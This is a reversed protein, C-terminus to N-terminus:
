FWLLTRANERELIKQTQDPPFKLVSTIVKAMTKTERGMMYEFVVKRLYEFETPEGFLSVDSHCLNGDRYPTKVTTVYVAKEYNKLKDQLIHIQERFEQEKLKSDNVLTTKQALQAQLEAIKEEDGNWSEEYALRKKHDEKLQVLQEELKNVKKTMEEERAELIDEYKKVTRQLDDDKESIKKHLQVTETHHSEILESEVEQAKSITEKVAMELEQDKQALQTNFERMLQKLTSNHKLEIDEQEYKIKQEMEERSEKKMIELEQQHEKRLTRLDKQLKILDRHQEQKEQETQKLTAQLDKQQMQMENVMKQLEFVSKTKEEINGELTKILGSGEDLQEQLSNLKENYESIRNEMETRQQEREKMFDEGFSQGKEEKEQLKKELDKIAIEMNQEKQEKNKLEVKINRLESEYKTHQEHLSAQKKIQEELERQLNKIRNKDEQSRKLLEEQQEQAKMKSINCTNAEESYKELLREKDLLDKKLIDIKIDYMQQMNELAIVKDKEASVKITEVKKILEKELDSDISKNQQEKEEMQTTLQRKISAIKHEAKKKLDAIKSTAESILREELAKLEEEKTKLLALKIGEFEKSKEELVIEMDQMKKEFTLVNQEMEKLNDDKDVLAERARQLQQAMEKQGNDQEHYIKCEEMLYNNEETKRAIHEELEAIRATHIKIEAVLDSEQKEKRIQKQEMVCKLHELQKTQKDRENKIRNLEEEKESAQNNSLEIKSQLEKITNYNQTFRLQAKKKWESMKNVWHDVQKLATVKDESLSEVKSALVEMENLLQLQNERHQKNLMMTAAEKESISKELRLNLESTLKNLDTIEAKKENLEERMSTVINNYESLEKKLETICSEKETATQQQLYSEKELLEKETLLKDVDAKMSMMLHEKEELHKKSEQLSSNLTVHSGTLQELQVKLDPVQDAKILIDEKIKITQQQCHAIKVTISSIKENCQKILEGIKIKLLAEAKQQYDALQIITDRKFNEFEAQKQRFENKESELKTEYNEQEKLHSLKLAQYEADSMKLKDALEVIDYKKKEEILKIENLQEQVTIKEKLSFSLDTELKVLQKKLDSEKQTLLNVQALTQQLQEQLEHITKDKKTHEDKLWTIEANNGEREADFTALREKLDRIEQEKEQLETEHKEELEEVEQKLKKGWLHVVEDVEQKHTEVMSKLQEKQNMELKLIADNIGLSNAHTMELMKSTFQKEKQNFELQNSEIESKLKAEQESLKQKFEEQMNKIKEIAEETQTEQQKLKLEYEDRLANIEEEKTSLQQKYKEIQQNLLHQIQGIESEKGTCHSKLQSIEGGLNRLQSEYNETLSSTKQINKRKEEELECKLDNVQSTQFDLETKVEKLQTETKVIQEELKSKKDMIVELKEQLNKFKNEYISANDERSQCLVDSEASMRKCQTEAKGLTEKMEKQESEEESKEKAELFQKLQIIEEKFSKETVEQDKFIAEVQEKHNNRQQDLKAEFEVKAKNADEKLKSIYQELNQRSNLADSLESSLAELETQKVDLKELTKENMEEIHAHFIAEKEKLLKATEEEHHKRLKEIESQQQQTLIDFQEKWHQQEQQKMYEIEKKHKETMTAIKKNHENKDSDIQTALEELQSKDNQPCKMLSSELELIRTQFTEVELQMDEVKKNCESQLAKKQLEIEELALLDQQEKEKMECLHNKQCKKVEQKMRTLEQQLIVCKEENAKEIAKIKEDMEAQLKKHAKEAMQAAGLAKELQEFASKASKEKQKKLEESQLAMQKIHIHLQAIEEEKLELTEHMQRKTEAIVMGKDQELQEILNKSERLQTIFKTKEAMHCDKIKELEQLREYLQKQLVEKESTLQALREKQSKIREKCQHLLNEQHKVQQTLTEITKDANENGVPGVSQLTQVSPNKLEINTENSHLQQKLLSVQTQLVSIIQDKEELSAAFEEQLHRKTKQDRKVEVPSSPESENNSSNQKHIIERNPTSTSDDNQETLSSTRNRHISPSLASSESSRQPFASAGGAPSGRGSTQEESIKQKLKKFM